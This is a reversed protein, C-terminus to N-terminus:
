SCNCGRYTSSAILRAVCDWLGFDECGKHTRSLTLRASDSRFVECTRFIYGPLRCEDLRVENSLTVRYGSSIAVATQTREGGREKEHHRPRSDLKHTAARLKLSTSMSPIVLYPIPRRYGRPVHSCLYVTSISPSWTGGPYRYRLGNQLSGTHFCSCGQFTCCPM